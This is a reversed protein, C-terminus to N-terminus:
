SYLEETCKPCIGHTIRTKTRESLYREMEVWSDQDESAAGELRIRKCNACVPLVGELKAIHSLAKELEEIKAKLAKEKEDLSDIMFNFADSFDGMFDVRQSYDGYAVQKAQWTLHLLRSHLEKFPSALLNKPRPPKIEYLEGQSMPVIFERIEQMFAFLQNLLSSLRRADEDAIGSTDIEKPIKGQMLVALKDVAEDIM